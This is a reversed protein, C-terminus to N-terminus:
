PVRSRCASRMSFPRMVASEHRHGIPPRPWVLFNDVGGTAPDGRPQDVAVGVKDPAPAPRPLELSPQRTRGIGLDRGGAAADARGHRRRPRCGLLLQSERTGLPQPRQQGFPQGRDLDLGAVPETQLMLQLLQARRPPDGIEHRNSHRRRQQCQMGHRRLEVTPGVVEDRVGALLDQRSGRLGPEGVCDVHEALMQGERGVLALPHEGLRGLEPQRYLAM